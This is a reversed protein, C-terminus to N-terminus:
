IIENDLSVRVDTTPWNTLVDYIHGKDNISIFLGRYFLYVFKRNIKRTFNRKVKTELLDIWIKSLSIWRNTHLSTAYNRTYTAYRSSLVIKWKSRTFSSIFYITIFWGTSQTSKGYIKWSSTGTYSSNTTIFWPYSVNTTRRDYICHGSLVFIM